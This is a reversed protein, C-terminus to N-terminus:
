HGTARALADRLAVLQATQWQQWSATAPVMTETITTVSIGAAHAEAIQVQIDPTANQSNYVYVKILHDKIQADVTAKDMATPDTGESIAKLFDPPTLLDLGLAPAIMAFISESAGVPTGAYKAKIDAIVSKYDATATTEFATKQADFYASDAPDIKQYDTVIQDVVKQVDAPNYWRHPNGGPAVGLLLGGDLVVRRSSPNADVLNTAWTDYGIGNILVFDAAAITRGDAATPEYDHPDADPNNIISTVHVKSGGLQSAISGWFNEAAVVQISRSTGLASTGATSCASLLGTLGAIVFSCVLLSTARLKRRTLMSPIVDTKM